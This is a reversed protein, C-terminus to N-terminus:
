RVEKRNMEKTSVRVRKSNLLDGSQSYLSEGIKLHSSAMLEKRDLKIRSIEITGNTAAVLVNKNDNINIIRGSSYPHFQTNDDYKADLINIVQNCYCCWAGEYPDGFARIFREIHRCDWSWDIAGNIPTYLRSFYIADNQNQKIIKFDHGDKLKVLFETILQESVFGTERLIDKPYSKSVDFETKRELIIDGDDIGETLYHITSTIDNINNLIKWTPGAGGRGYPLHAGHLNIIEGNFYEILPRKIIQRCNISFGINCGENHLVKIFEESNINPSKKIKCLELKELDEITEKLDLSNFTRKDRIYQDDPDVIIIPKSFGLRSLERIVHNTFFTRGFIAFRFEDLKDAVM